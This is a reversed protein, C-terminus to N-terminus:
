CISVPRPHEVLCWRSVLGVSELVGAFAAVQFVIVAVPVHQACCLAITSGATVLLLLRQRSASFALTPRHTVPIIVFIVNFHIATSTALMHNPFM